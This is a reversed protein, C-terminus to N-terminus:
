DADEPPVLNALDDRHDPDAMEDVDSFTRDRYVQVEEFDRHLRERLTIFEDEQMTVSFHYTKSM